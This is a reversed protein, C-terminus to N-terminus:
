VEEFVPIAEETTRKFTRIMPVGLVRCAHAMGAPALAEDWSEPVPKALLRVSLGRQSVFLCTVTTFGWPM